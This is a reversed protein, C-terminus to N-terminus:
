LPLVSLSELGFMLESEHLLTVLLLKIQHPLYGFYKKFATTFHSAHKYGSLKAVEAIKMDENILLEKSRNMRQTHVYGFVTTGFVQKFHKKLYCENTGVQQALDLLTCSRSIDADIIDKVDYMKELNSDSTYIEPMTKYLAEYEQFQLMLLEIFKSKLYLTKYYSKHEFLFMDYLLSKMRSTVEISRENLLVPNNENLSSFFTEHMPNDSSLFRKFYDVEINIIYLESDAERTWSNDVVQTNIFILSSQNHQVDAFTKGTLRNNFVGRSKFCFVLSVYPKYSKFSFSQTQASNGLVRIFHIDKTLFEYFDCNVADFLDSNHSEVVEHEEMRFLDSYPIVAEKLVEDNLMPQVSAM